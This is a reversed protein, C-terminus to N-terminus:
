QKCSHLLLFSAEWDSFTEKKTFYFFCVLELVELKNKWCFVEVKFVFITGYKSKEAHKPIYRMCPVQSSFPLVNQLKEIFKLDTLLSKSFTDEAFNWYFPIDFLSLRSDCLRRKTTRPSKYEKREKFIYKLIRDMIQLIFCFTFQMSVDIKKKATTKNLLFLSSGLISKQM